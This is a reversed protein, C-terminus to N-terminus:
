NYYEKVKTLSMFRNLYAVVVPYADLCNIPVHDVGGSILRNLIPVLYCDAISPESGCLYDTKELRTTLYGMYQPLDDAVFKERLAKVVAKHEDSGKFGDQLFGLKQPEIGLQVPPRWARDLDEVLGIAEETELMKEPPYLPVGADTALKGAYRLIATSQSIPSGGDITLLPLQGYPTTPKLMGWKSFEIREDEFAIGGLHFALRIKEGKVQMNFYTLKLKPMKGRHLM